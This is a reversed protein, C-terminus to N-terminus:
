ACCDSVSRGCVAGDVSGIVIEASLVGLLSLIVDEDGSGVKAKRCFTIEIVTHARSILGCFSM